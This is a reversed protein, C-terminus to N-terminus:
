IDTPPPFIQITEINKALLVIGEPSIKHGLFELQSQAFACKSTNIILGNEQLLQFGTISTTSDPTISTEQGASESDSSNPTVV